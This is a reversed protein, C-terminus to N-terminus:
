CGVDHRAEPFGGVNSDRVTDVGRYSRCWGVFSLGAGVLGKPLLLVFLVLVAGILSSRIDGMAKAVEVLLTMLLAGLVPGWTSKLGGVIVMALIFFLTSLDFLSPGAYQFHAAHIGGTVGTFFATAVFAIAQFKTRNIGRSAAYIASDSMARFALGLRGHIIIISAVFSVAFVAEVALYDGIIWNAHLMPKFGLDMFLSFGNTGGFFPQCNGGATLYCDSQTIILTYAMYAIAFTLLAVYATGLRLCALGIVLAAGGALLGAFLLTIWPSISLYSALMAVSYSGIAFFLMQGLSFVGAHGMLVNWQIAVSAWILLTIIQGLVYREKMFLPIVAVIAFLAAAGLLHKQLETIDKM